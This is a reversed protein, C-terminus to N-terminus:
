VQKGNQCIRDALKGLAQRLRLGRDNSPRDSAIDLLIGQASGVGAADTLKDGLDMLAEAFDFKGEQRAFAAAGAAAAPPVPDGPPRLSTLITEAAKIAAAYAYPSDWWPRAADKTLISSLAEAHGAASIADKIAEGMAFMLGSLERGYALDLAELLRAENAFSHEIRIEAEQALSRGSRKAAAELSQRMEFTTRMNLPYRKGTEADKKKTVKARPPM